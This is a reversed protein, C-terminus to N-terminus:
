HNSFLLRDQNLRFLIDLLLELQFLPLANRVGDLCLTAMLIGRSRNLLLELLQAFPAVSHFLDPTVTQSQTQSSYSCQFHLQFEHVLIDYIAYM